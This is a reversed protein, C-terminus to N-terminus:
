RAAALLKKLLARLTEQEEATLNAFRPDSGAEASGASATGKDTLVVQARRRDDESKERVLYGRAELKGLLESLSGPQVCLKEQLEKQDMRGGEGAIMALVRAQSSGAHGGAHRFLHGCAGILLGLDDVEAFDYIRHRSVPHPHEGRPEGDDHPHHGRPGADARPHHGHPHEPRDPGSRGHKPRGSDPMDSGDQGSHRNKPGPHRREASAAKDLLRQAHRHLLSTGAAPQEEGNNIKNLADNENTNM